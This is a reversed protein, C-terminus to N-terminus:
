CVRSVATAGSRAEATLPCRELAAARAEWDVEEEEEEEEGDEEPDQAAAAVEGASPAAPAESWFVRLHM